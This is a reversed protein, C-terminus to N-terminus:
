ATATKKTSSAKANRPPANMLEVPHTSYHDLSQGKKIVDAAARSMTYDDMIRQRRMASASGFAQALLWERHGRGEEDANLAATCRYIVALNALVESIYQAVCIVFTPELKGKESALVGLLKSTDRELTKSMGALNVHPAALRVGGYGHGSTLGMLSQLMSAVGTGSSSAGKGFSHGHSLLPHLLAMSQEEMSGNSSVLLYKSSNLLEALYPYDIIKAPNSRHAVAAVLPTDRVVEWAGDMGDMLAREAYIKLMMSEILPIELRETFSSMLEATEDGDAAEPDGVVYGTLCDIGYRFCALQALRMQVAPNRLLLADYRTTNTAHLACVDGLKRLIASYATATLVHQYSAVQEASLSECQVADANALHVHLVGNVLRKTVVGSQELPVSATVYKPTAEEGGELRLVVRISTPLAHAAATASSSSHQRHEGGEGSPVATKATHVGGRGVVTATGSAKLKVPTGADAGTVVASAATLSSSSWEEGGGHVEKLWAVPSENIALERVANSRKHFAKLARKKAECSRVCQGEAELSTAAAATVAAAGTNAADPASAAGAAKESHKVSSESEEGSSASGAAPASGPAAAAAAAASIERDLQISFFNLMQMDALRGRRVLLEVIDQRARLIRVFRMM